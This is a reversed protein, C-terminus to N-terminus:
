LNGAESENSGTWVYSPGGMSTSTTMPTSMASSRDGSASAVRFASARPNVTFAAGGFFGKLDPLSDNGRGQLHVARIGQALVFRLSGARLMTVTQLTARM